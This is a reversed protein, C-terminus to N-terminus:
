RCETKQDEQHYAGSATIIRIRILIKPSRFRWQHRLRFRAIQIPMCTVHIILVNVKYFTSDCSKGFSQRVHAAADSRSNDVSKPACDITLIRSLYPSCKM